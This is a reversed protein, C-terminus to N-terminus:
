QLSETIIQAIHMSEVESDLTIWLQMFVVGGAEQTFAQMHIVSCKKSHLLPYFQVHTNPIQLEWATLVTYSKGGLQQRM